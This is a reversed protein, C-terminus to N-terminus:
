PLDGGPAGPRLQRLLADVVSVAGRSREWADGVAVHDVLGCADPPLGLSETAAASLPTPEAEDGYAPFAELGDWLEGLPAPPRRGRALALAVSSFVDYTDLGEPRRYGAM